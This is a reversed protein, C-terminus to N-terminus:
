PAASPTSVIRINGHVVNVSHIYKVARAINLVQRLLIPEAIAPPQPPLRCRVLELRSVDRNNSLYERLSLHDM